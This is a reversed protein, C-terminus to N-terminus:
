GFSDLPHHYDVERRLVPDTFVAFYVAQLLEQSAVDAQPDGLDAQVRRVVDDAHGDALGLDALAERIWATVAPNGM